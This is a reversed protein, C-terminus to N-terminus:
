PALSPDTYPWGQEDWFLLTIRLTSSGNHSADYAHYILISNDGETYVACHGPGKWRENGELIVTGGGNMMSTGAADKYEGNIASSRGVAIKYTSQVGRCCLDFSVFLYYYDVRRIIFPAEIANSGPRYAISQIASNGAPLMTTPDLKVIKIGSWFSGFSLWPTGQEDYAINPDICNYNDAGSSSIVPGRDIWEYDPDDQDLTSNTTLGIVSTNKGFSSVSYYLYYVGNRYSIDPAWINPSPVRVYERPWESTEDFVRGQVHWTVGDASTKFKLRRSTYFLYWTDKQRIIVPDHVSLDGSLEWEIASLDIEADRGATDDDKPFCGNIIVALFVYVVIFFLYKQM